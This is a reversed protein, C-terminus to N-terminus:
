PEATSSAPSIQARVIEGTSSTSAVECADVPPVLRQTGVDRDAPLARELLGARRLLREAVARGEPREVAHRERHLILEVRCAYPGGRARAQVAVAHRGLVGGHDRPESRRAADEEPLQVEGLERQAARERMREALGAVRPVPRALGAAGGRARADRRRGREGRSGEALVGAPRHPGRGRPAARDPQTGGPAQHGARAAHRHRPRHVRRTQQGARHLLRRQQEIMAPGSPCSAEHPGRGTIRAGIELHRPRARDADDGRQDVARLGIRLHALRHAPARVAARSPATSSTM